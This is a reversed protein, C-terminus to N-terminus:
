VKDGTLIEVLYNGVARDDHSRTAHFSIANDQNAQGVMTWLKMAAESPLFIFYDALNTLESENLTNKFRDSAGMKDILACHQNMDVDPCKGKDLVDSITVVKSYNAVFDNFSVAAEFGLYASALSFVVPNSQGAELMKAAKMTDSFRAWSRRSPYVKNPEPDDNHELHETNNRIFDVVLAECNGRAWTIWDDISPEVDFVTYRDLEAPDMEGVQYAAAGAHIGGNVAAFILTEPHLTHGALKRSDCLEFIGQRVELTARDVEDLFLLVGTACATAFWDPPCFSTVDDDVKPLGLLDGETMQSARREVVPLGVSTAYQYVVSSKGIGHRGRLLVPHNASTVHPLVLLLNKFDIAM